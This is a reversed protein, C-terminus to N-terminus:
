LFRASDQNKFHMSRESMSANSRRDMNTSIFTHLHEAIPNQNQTHAEAGSFFVSREKLRGEM